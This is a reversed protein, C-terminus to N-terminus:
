RPPPRAPNSAPPEDEDDPVEEGVAHAAVIEPAGPTPINVETPIGLLAGLKLALEAAEVLTIRGDELAKAAWASVIGFVQFILWFNM